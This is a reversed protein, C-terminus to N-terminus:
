NFTFQNFSVNHTRPTENGGTALVINNTTIHNYYINDITLSSDYTFMKREIHGLNLSDINNDQLLKYMYDFSGYTMLCIDFLNQVELAKISKITSDSEKQTISIESPTSIVFSADYNVVTNPNSEFDYDINDLGPNAKIFGYVEDMTGYFSLVLDFINQEQIVKYQGQPM